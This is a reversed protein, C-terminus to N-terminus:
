ARLRMGVFSIIKAATASSTSNIRTTLSYGSTNGSSSGPMGGSRSISNRMSSAGPVVVMYLFGYLIAGDM